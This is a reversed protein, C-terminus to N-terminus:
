RDLVDVVAAVAQIVTNHQHAPGLTDVPRVLVLGTGGYVDVDVNVGDVIGLYSAWVKLVHRCFLQRKKNYFFLTHSKKLHSLM